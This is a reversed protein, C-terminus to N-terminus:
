PMRKVVKEAMDKAANLGAIDTGLFITAMHKDKTVFFTNKSKWWYAGDGFGSVPEMDGAQKMAADFGKKVEAKNKYTWVTLLVGILDANKKYTCHSFSIEGMKGDDKQPELVSTGIATEVESKKLLGCANTNEQSKGGATLLLAILLLSGIKSFSCKKM